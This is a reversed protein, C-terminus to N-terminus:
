SIICGKEPKEEEFYAKSKDNNFFGPNYYDTIINIVDKPLIQKSGNVLVERTKEIVEIHEPKSLLNHKTTNGSRDCTILQGDISTAFFPANDFEIKKFRKNPKNIDFVLVTIKDQYYKQNVIAGYQGNFVIHRIEDAYEVSSLKINRHYTFIFFNINHVL